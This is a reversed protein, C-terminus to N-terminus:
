AAATAAGTGNTKAEPELLQVNELEEQVQELKVEHDPVLFPEEIGDM